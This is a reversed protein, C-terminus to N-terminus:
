KRPNDTPAKEAARLEFANQMTHSASFILALLHHKKHTGRQVIALKTRMPFPSVRTEGFEVKDVKERFAETPEASLKALFGRQNLQSMSTSSSSM